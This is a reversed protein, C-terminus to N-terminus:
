NATRFGKNRQGSMIQRKGQQVEMDTEDNTGIGYKRNTGDKGTHIYKQM